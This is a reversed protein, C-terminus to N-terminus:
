YYNTRGDNDEKRRENKIIKLFENYDKGVPPPMNIVEYKGELARMVGRAASAGVEDNDFHIFVQELKLNHKLYEDLAPPLTYESSEQSKHVGCVSLYDDSEWDEGNMMCLSLYSLHDIPGEFIHLAKSFKRPFAFCFRKDSGAVDGKLMSGDIARYAAHRPVNDFDSGVFVINRHNAAEFVLGSVGMM